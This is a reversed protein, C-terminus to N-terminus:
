KVQVSSDPQVMNNISSPTNHQHDIAAIKVGLSEFFAPWSNYGYESGFRVIELNQDPMLYIFEGKNGRASYHYNVGDRSSIWWLYQYFWDPDTQTSAGTSQKVWAAPIIQQNNWKGHNLFLSGFKAFDIARGNIGSEMKEFGDQASDLSWSGSAEMGLPKWIKEQLYHSVSQHTTRELILGLLLANYPNYVFQKGPAAVINCQLALSRLNPDYYTKSDDSQLPNAEKHWQIGSTMTLLHQITIKEFRPDRKALEPLYRTIPTNVSEISGDEIAIGVLASTFSKAISFSTVESTANYGNFYQEYIIQNNKIVLFSTTGTSTLFQRLDQNQGYDNDNTTVTQFAPSYLNNAPLRQYTYAPGANAVPRNTFRNFDKASADQWVLLRAALSNDTNFYALTYLAGSLVLLTCLIGLIIRLVKPVRRRKRTPQPKM